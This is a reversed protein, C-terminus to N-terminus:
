QDVEQVADLLDDTAADVIEAYAAADLPAGADVLLKDAFGASIVPAAEPAHKWLEEIAEKLVKKLGTGERKTDRVVSAQHFM